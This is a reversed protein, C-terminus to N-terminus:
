FRAGATFRFFESKDFDEDLLPQAFTFSMPGIPSDWNVGLGASVRISNEDAIVRDPTTGGMGDSVQLVLADKDSIDYATGADVFVSGRFGYEILFPLTFQVETQVLGYIESGLADGTLLDRAGIGSREFGRLKSGGIFFREQVTSDYDNYSVLVGAEAKLSLVLNDTLETFFTGRGVNRIHEVDGGIGSFDQDLSLSYGATPDIPDNRKDYTLTYGVASSTSQRETNQVIASATTPIDSIEDQSFRYRPSFRANESIPFGFRIGGGTSDQDFSSEDQFDSSISFIDFGFSLDRDLFYPETFRLEYQQQNGSIAARLRLFQGRGLFNRETLSVDGLINDVSSFGLGFSLEGTSQEEVKVKLIARDPTSGAEERVDVDAFFGLGRLNNRSREAKARNFADGEALEFERRIVKDLTRVNGEIEIREVYIRPGEDIIFEIDITAAEANRRPRPRVEVFAHGAEGAAFALRDVGKEILEADYRDGTDIKLKNKLDEIDLEELKTLINLEGFQYRQGEEVVITIFFDEQNPSLEAVASLVQFDAYGNKLYFRRLQEKDSALRDPDYTDSSSLFRWWRSERTAIVRRLRSDSYLENGIFNIRRIGTVPGEEIEFVVDVRNQDQQIVKPEVRAGFRGSRQYLDIIRQVDAQAKARTFVTRPRLQVEPELVDNKIKANGEFAVRNVIPNEVVRVQLGTGKREIAVDAFLGTNFLSKLARNIDAASAPQGVRIPMYSRVTDPEVRLNGTVEIGSIVGDTSQAMLTTPTLGSALAVFSFAVFVRLVAAPAIM